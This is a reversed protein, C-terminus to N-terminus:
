RDAYKLKDVNEIRWLSLRVSHDRLETLVNPDRVEPPLGAYRRIYEEMMTTALFDQARIVLVPEDEPVPPGDVGERKQVIYRTNGITTM